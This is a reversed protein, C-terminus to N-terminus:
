TAPSSQPRVYKNVGSSFLLIVIVSLSLAGTLIFGPHKISYLSSRSLVFYALLLHLGAVIVTLTIAPRWRKFLGVVLLFSLAYSSSYKGTEEVFWNKFTAPLWCCLLLCVAVAVLQWFGNERPNM